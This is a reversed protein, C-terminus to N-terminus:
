KAPNPLGTPAAIVTVWCGCFATARTPWVAREGHGRRSRRLDNKIVALLVANINRARIFSPGAAFGERIDSGQTTANSASNQLDM